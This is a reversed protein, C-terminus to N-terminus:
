LHVVIHLQWASHCAPACYTEDMPETTSPGTMSPVRTGRGALPLAHRDELYETLIRALSM